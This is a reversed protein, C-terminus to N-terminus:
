GRRANTRPYGLHENITPGISKRFWDEAAPSWYETEDKSMKTLTETGLGERLIHAPDMSRCDVFECLRLVGIEQRLHEFRITCTGPRGHWRAVPSYFKQLQRTGRQQLFKVMQNQPTAQDAWTGYGGRRHEKTWRMLSVLATRLERVLIVKKFPRLLNETMGSFGLHSVAFHQEDIMAVSDSIKKKVLLQKPKTRADDFPVGDYDTYANKFLHWNTARLGMLKLYEACLYTGAKPQSIIIGRM